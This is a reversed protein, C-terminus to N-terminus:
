ARCRTRRGPRHRGPKGRRPAAMRKHPCGRDRVARIGPHAAAPRHGDVVREDHQRDAHLGGAPPGPQRGGRDGAADRLLAASPGGAHTVPLPDRQRGGRGPGRHGEDRGRGERDGPRQAGEAERDRRDPRQRLRRNHLGCLPRGAGARVRRNGGKGDWRASLADGVSGAFADRDTLLQITTFGGACDRVTQRVDNSVYNSVYAEQTGYDAYLREVSEPDISYIVQVDVDAKTGSQDNVTVTAGDYSGNDYRYENDRYLNILRNRIDWSTVDQWPAKLHFGAETTHGVTSGGLNRIVVAEGVDQAYVCGVGLAVAALALPVLSWAVPVEREKRGWGEEESRENRKRTAANYRRLYAATAVAAAVLLAAVIISIM